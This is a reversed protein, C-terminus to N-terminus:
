QLRVLRFKAWQTKAAKSIKAKASPTHVYGSSCAIVANASSKRGQRGHM